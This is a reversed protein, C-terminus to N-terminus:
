QWELVPWQVVSSKMISGAPLSAVVVQYAPAQLLGIGGLTTFCLHPLLSSRLNYSKNASTSVFGARFTM